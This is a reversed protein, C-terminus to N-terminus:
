QEFTIIGAKAGWPYGESTESLSSITGDEGKKITINTLSKCDIFANNGISMVSSPLTMNNLAFCAYFAENGLSKVNNSMSVSVLEMCLGFANSGISIVSDPIIVRKLAKFRYFAEDGIKTVARGDIKEPIKLNEVIHSGNTVGFYEGGEWYGCDIIEYFKENVGIIEIENEGIINTKFIDPDIDDFIADSSEVYWIVMSGPVIDKGYYNVVYGGNPITLVYIDTDGTGNGLKTKNGTLKITDIKGNKDIYGKSLAFDWFSIKEESIVEALKVSDISALKTEKKTAGTYIEIQYDYYALAISDKVIAHSNEETSHVAKNLVGNEGTLTM